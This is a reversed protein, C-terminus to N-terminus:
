EVGGWTLSYHDLDRKAFDGGYRADAHLTKWYTGVEIYPAASAETSGDLYTGSADFLNIDIALRECHLSNAIGKGERAYLAATEPSRWAEGLTVGYGQSVAYDILRPVLSAFLRQQEGLTM